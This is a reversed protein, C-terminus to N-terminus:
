SNKGSAQRFAGRKQCFYGNCVVRNLLWGWPLLITVSKGYWTVCAQMTSSCGTRVSLPHKSGGPSRDRRGSCGPSGTIACNLPLGLSAHNPSPLRASGQHNMVYRTRPHLRPLDARPKQRWCAAKHSADRRFAQASATSLRHQADNTTPAKGHNEQFTRDVESERENFITLLQKLRKPSRDQRQVGNMHHEQVSNMTVTYETKKRHVETMAQAKAAVVQKAAVLKDLIAGLATHPLNANGTKHRNGSADQWSQM